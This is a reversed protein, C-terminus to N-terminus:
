NVCRQVPTPDIGVTKMVGYSCDANFTDAENCKELFRVAYLFWHTFNSNVSYSEALTQYLCRERLSEELMQRGKLSALPAPLKAAPFIACYAGEALCSDRKLDASCQPCAYTLVRPTFLAQDKLAHQNIGLQALTNGDVDLISSYWLEYEVRNDPHSMEFQAKIYVTDQNHLVKKIADAERKRVIFSPISVSHGSGDDTMIVNESAEEKNDAVICVKVGVKEANRVKTVFSCAGRDVMLVVNDEQRFFEGPLDGAEFERCGETNSLPYFM